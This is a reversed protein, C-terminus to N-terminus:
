PPLRPPLASPRPHLPARWAPEGSRVQPRAPQPEPRSPARRRPQVPEPPRATRLPGPRTRRSNKDAPAMTKRIIREPRAPAPQTNVMARTRKREDTSARTPTRVHPMRAATFGGHPMSLRPVRSAHGGGGHGGGGHGGGGHGGGGHGGGHGARAMAEPVALFGALVAALVAGRVFGPRTEM